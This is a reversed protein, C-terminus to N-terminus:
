KAGRQRLLQEIHHIRSRYSSSDVHLSTWRSAIDVATEGDKARFNVNAGHKLLYDVPEGNVSEVAQMLPTWGSSAKHNVDAGAVVLRKVVAAGCLSCAYNLATDGDSGVTKVDVGFEILIIASDEQRCCCACMLTTGGRKDKRMINAGHAILLRLKNAEARFAPTYGYDDSINPDAGHNLLYSLDAEDAGEMTFETLTTVVHPNAKCLAQVVAHHHSMVANELPPWDSHLKGTQWNLSMCPEETPAGSEILAVALPEFDPNDATYKTTVCGNMTDADRYLVSLANEGGTAQDPTNGRHIIRFLRQKFASMFSPSIADRVRASGDAGQRCLRLATKYNRHEIAEILQNNLYVHRQEHKVYVGATLALLGLGACSASIFRGKM